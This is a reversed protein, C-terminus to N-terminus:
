WLRVDVCRSSTGHPERKIRRERLALDGPVPRFYFEAHTACVGRSVVVRKALRKPRYFHLFLFM